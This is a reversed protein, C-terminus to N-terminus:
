LITLGQMTDSPAIAALLLPQLGHCILCVFAFCILLKLM